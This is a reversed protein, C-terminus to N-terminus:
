SVEKICHGENKEKQSTRRTIGKRHADFWVRYPAGDVKCSAEKNWLCALGRVVLCFSNLGEITCGLELFYM